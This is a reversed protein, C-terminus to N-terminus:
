NIFYSNKCYIYTWDALIGICEWYVIISIIYVVPYTLGSLRKWDETTWNQHAGAFQLRVEPKMLASKGM